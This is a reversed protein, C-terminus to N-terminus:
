QLVYTSVFCCINFKWIGGGLYGGTTKYPMKRENPNVDLCGLAFRWHYYTDSLFGCCHYITISCVAVLSFNGPYDINWAAREIRNHYSNYGMYFRYCQWFSTYMRIYIITYSWLM